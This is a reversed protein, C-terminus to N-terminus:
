AQTILFGVAPSHVAAESTEATLGNGLFMWTHHSIGMIRTSHTLSGNVSSRESPQSKPWVLRSRLAFLWAMGCMSSEPKGTSTSVIWMQVIRWSLRFDCQLCDNSPKRSGAPKDYLQPLIINLQHNFLWGTEKPWKTGIDHKCLCHWQSWCGTRFLIEKPTTTFPGIGLHFHIHYQQTQWWFHLTLPYVALQHTIIGTMNWYIEIMNIIGKRRSRICM